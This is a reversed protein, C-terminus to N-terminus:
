RLADMLDQKRNRSVDIHKGNSMILSGGRGKLYKKIHDLNVLYKHHVRVFRYSPLVYEYEKINKSSVLQEQEHIYITTYNGEAELYLIKEVKIIDLGDMSPIAVRNVEQSVPNTHNHLLDVTEQSIPNVQNIYRQMAQQVDDFAIPKLLYDLAAVKIAKLAFHDYATTFIIEFPIEKFKKLLDFGTGDPMRIDLFVLQPNKEKIIDYGSDVSDAEGVVEIEGGLDTLYSKLIKRADKEDDIIIVSSNQVVNKM